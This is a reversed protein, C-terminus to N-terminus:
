KKGIIDKKKFKNISEGAKNMDKLIFDNGNNIANYVSVGTNTNDFLERFVKESEIISKETM